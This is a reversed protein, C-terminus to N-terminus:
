RRKALGEGTIRMAQGIKLFKKLFPEKFQFDLTKGLGLSTLCKEFSIALHSLDLLALAKIAMADSTCFQHNLDKRFFLLAIGETEGPHLQDVFVSNFFSSIGMMETINATLISIKGSRGLEMLDIPNPIKQEKRSYFLVEEQAIISPVTISVRELLKEWVSLKYAEIIINADLLLSKPRITKGRL